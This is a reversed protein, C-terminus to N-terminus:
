MDPKQPFNGRNGSLSNQSHRLLYEAFQSVISGQRRLEVGERSSYGTKLVLPAFCFVNIGWRLIDRSSRLLSRLFPTCNCNYLQTATHHSLSDCAIVNRLIHVFTIFPLIKDQNYCKCLSLFSEQLSILTFKLLNDSRRDFSVWSKM